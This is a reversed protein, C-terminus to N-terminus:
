ACLLGKTAESWIVRPEPYSALLHGLFRIAAKKDRHKQLFVDLECGDSDVARWLVFPEGNVKVVMEDLHWKSLAEEREEQHDGQFLSRVQYEM